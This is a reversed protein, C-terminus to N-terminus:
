SGSNSGGPHEASPRVTATEVPLSADRWAQFGGDIIRATACGSQALRLAAQEARVGTDSLLHLEARCLGDDLWQQLNDRRMDRLPINIAGAAHGVAFEAPSRVDVLVAPQARAAVACAALPALARTYTFM